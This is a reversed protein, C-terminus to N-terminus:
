KNDTTFQASANLWIRKISKVDVSELVLPAINIRLSTQLEGVFLCDFFPLFFYFLAACQQGVNAAGPHLVITYVVSSFLTDTIIQSISALSSLITIICTLNPNQQM